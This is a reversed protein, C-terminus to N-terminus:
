HHGALTRFRKVLSSARTASRAVVIITDDGAVTGLVDALRAQDVAIALAGANGPRTHLLVTHGAADAALLERGVARELSREDHAAATGNGPLVYGQPSKAVGRDHLDRSITAQTATIGEAELWEQLEHHSAPRQDAILELIRQQRRAKTPM